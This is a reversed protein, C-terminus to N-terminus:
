TSTIIYIKQTQSAKTRSPHTFKRHVSLSDMRVCRSRLAIEKKQFSAFFCDRYCDDMTMKPRLTRLTLAPPAAIVPSLPEASSDPSFISGGFSSLAEPKSPKRAANPSNKPSVRNCTPRCRCFM